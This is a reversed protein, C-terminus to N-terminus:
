DQVLASGTGGERCREELETLFGQMAEGVTVMGAPLDTAKMSSDGPAGAAGCFLDLLRPTGKQSNLAM